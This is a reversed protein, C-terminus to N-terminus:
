TRNSANQGEPSDSIIQTIAKQSNFSGKAAIEKLKNIVEEPFENKGELGTLMDEIIQQPISKEQEQQETM